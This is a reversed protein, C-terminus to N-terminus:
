QAYGGNPWPGADPRISGGDDVWRLADLRAHSLRVERRALFEDLRETMAQRSDQDDVESACEPTVLRWGVLEALDVVPELVSGCTRCDRVLNAFEGGAIHLRTKCAACKYHPM